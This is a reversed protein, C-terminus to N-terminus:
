DQPSLPNWVRQARPDQAHSDTEGQHLAQTMAETLKPTIRTTYLPLLRLSAFCADM